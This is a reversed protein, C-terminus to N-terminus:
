DRIPRVSFAGHRDVYRASWINDETAWFLNANNYGGPAAGWVRIDRGIRNPKGPSDTKYRAGTAPFFITDGTGNLGCYFNWGGDYPRKANINEAKGDQGPASNSFGTFEWGKPMHFGAPCPDYISKVPVKDDLFPMTNDTDWLNLYQGDMVQNTNLKQPNKIGWTLATIGTGTAETLPNDNSVTGSADYWYKTAETGTDGPYLPDKRGWQYYPSNGKYDVDLSTQSITFTRVEEGAKIRVQCSRGAFNLHESDCWGLNVPMMQVSNGILSNSVKKTQTLDTDTIWIHWSWMIDGADDCVAIVANGQQITTAGVTFRIARGGDYLGVNSILGSADQWLLKCSKATCGEHDYIRPSQIPKGRHNIFNKLIYTDDYNYFYASKNDGGGTIANGYVLPFYYEGPNSVVYCNATHQIAPQGLDNSLNYPADKTGKAPRARLADTHRSTSSGQQSAVTATYSVASVSGAGSTGSTFASLWGPKTGTWSKGDTSFEATWSVPQKSTSNQKYSTISYTSSGGKFTYTNPPNVTLIYEWNISTTSIRYTVTKGMPWVQKGIAGTLTHETQGDEFVIEIKATDPLTQPLMMFTQAPRTLASGETGNTAADLTQSFNKPTRVDSWAATELNYTGTAYVGKLTVSKVTGAKMDSGCVFKVATLAHRFTLGIAENNGGSVAGSAAVLLDQQGAVDSPIACTLTPIGSTSFTYASNGKPAYAYFRMTYSAGPWYYSGASPTWANGSKSVAVDNMYNPTGTNDWTGQYAYASVGFTEYMSAIDRPASRTVPVSDGANEASPPQISDTYLTHLYLPTGETRLASVASRTSEGGDTALSTWTNDIDSTFHIRDTTQSSKLDDTCSSILISWVLLSWVASLIHFLSKTM